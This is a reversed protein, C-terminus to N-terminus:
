INKKESHDLMRDVLAELAERNEAQRFNDEKLFYKLIEVVGEIAVLVGHRTDPETSIWVWFYARKHWFSNFVEPFVGVPIKYKKVLEGLDEVLSRELPDLAQLKCDTDDFAVDVLKKTVEQYVDHLDHYRYVPCCEETADTPQLPVTVKGKTCQTDCSGKSTIEKIYAHRQGSAPKESLCSERREMNKMCVCEEQKVDKTEVQSQILQKAFRVPNEMIEQVKRALCELIQPNEIYDEGFLNYSRVFFHCLEKKTLAELLNGFLKMMCDGRNSEVWMEAGTEEITQLFINKLHFSVLSKPQTSLYARHYRKLCHYCERQIDNMEQSLLYEAHSFSIRFECESNCKVKPSKVVLHFGEQIVKEVVDPSPWKRKRKIWEKAVNPWRRSRFAPIFDAGSTIQETDNSKTVMKENM